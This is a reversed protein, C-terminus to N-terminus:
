RLQEQPSAYNRTQTQDPQGRTNRRRRGMLHKIEAPNQASGLHSHHHGLSIEYRVFWRHGSSGRSVVRSVSQKM